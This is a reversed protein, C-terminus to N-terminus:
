HRCPIQATSSFGPRASQKIEGLQAGVKERLMLWVNHSILCWHTQGRHALHARALFHHEQQAPRDAYQLALRGSSLYWVDSAKAHLVCPMM